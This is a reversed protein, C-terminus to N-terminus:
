EPLPNGSDMVHAKVNRRQTFGEKAKRAIRCIWEISLPKKRVWRRLTLLLASDVLGVTFKLKGDGEVFGL